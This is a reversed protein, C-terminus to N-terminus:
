PTIKIHCYGGPNKDLYDQHYEEAPYFESAADIATVIPKKYTGSAELAKKSELALRRQEEDHYFVAARYQEGCDAGQMNLTTPNHVRWFHELLKSYSVRQPDFIIEVSEAHGTNGECVKKYDPAKDHGGTYGVRTSIVGPVKKFYQQAGWFCGAAFTAKETKSM